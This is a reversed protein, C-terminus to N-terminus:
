QRSTVHDVLSILAGVVVLALHVLFPETFARVIAAHVVLSFMGLYLWFHPIGSMPGDRSARRTRSGTSVAATAARQREMRERAEWERAAVDELDTDDEM